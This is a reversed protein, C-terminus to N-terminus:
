PSPRHQAGDFWPRASELVGAVRFVTKDDFPRGAIQVSTPMGRDTYGSPLALVPCRSFMNFLITMTSDNVDIPIDNVRLRDDWPRMDAPVEHLAITPCVFVDFRKFLPGLHEWWVRGATEQARHADAGTVTATMEAFYPTYDCVLEPSENVANSFLHAYLHDGYAGAAGIAEAAWDASVEVVNAGADRLADLTALTERRVDDTVQYCGLDLSYAIELGEIGGSELPIRLRPHVTAHDLPHPGSMVNQMLICDAITRTMPGTHNYVDFASSPSDPNRGYPPKYGVVGCMGAPHRISGASDTGTALTTTGSALAAGSGGSSAGCTYHPNWPNRTVGYLRSYTVWAWCFEPCTTRAHVIAGARMLREISPHTHDDVSDKNLLSGTTTRKGKIATDDKVALPIGELARPRGKAKAYKAEAREAFRMAEEFYRDAFANVTPEVQQTRDILAQMLEVPSLTRERFRALLEAASLYTLPTSSM